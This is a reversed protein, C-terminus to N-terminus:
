VERINVEDLTWTLTALEDPTLYLLVIDPSNGYHLTAQGDWLNVTIALRDSLRYTHYDKKNPVYVDSM